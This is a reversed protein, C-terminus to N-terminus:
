KSLERAIKNTLKQRAKHAMGDTLYGRLHLRVIARADDDYVRGQSKNLAFGAARIQDSVSDTLAGMVLSLHKKGPKTTM